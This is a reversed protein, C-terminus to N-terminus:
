VQEEYERIAALTEDACQQCEEAADVASENGGNWYESIHVLTDRMAANEQELRCAHQRLDSVGFVYNTRPTPLAAIQDKTM